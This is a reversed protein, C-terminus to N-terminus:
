RCSCPTIQNPNTILMNSSASLAHISTAAQVLLLIPARMDLWPDVVANGSTADCGDMWGDDDNSKRRSAHAAM